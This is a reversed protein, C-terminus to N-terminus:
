MRHVLIYARAWPGQGMPGPGHAGAWLGRGIPGPGHAGAWQGPGPIAVKGGKSQGKNSARHLERQKNAAERAQRVQREPRRRLPNRVRLDAADYLLTASWVRLELNPLANFNENSFIFSRM